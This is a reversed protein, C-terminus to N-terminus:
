WALINTVLLAVFGANFAAFGWVAAPLWRCRGAGLAVQRALLLWAPVLLLLVLYPLLGAVAAWLPLLISGVALGAVVARTATLPLVVALTRRGVAADATADNANESLLVLMFYCGLLASELLATAVQTGQLLLYPWLLTAVTSYWLLAEAGGPRFSLRLGWSYQPSLAAAALFLAVASLPWAGAVLFAGIGACLGVAQAIAIFVIVQRETVAGDLLPKRRAGRENGNAGYSRIDGGNRFGVLDDLATTAAVVAVVSILCCAFVGLTRAQTAVSWPLLTWALALGFYHQFVTLKAVKFLARVVASRDRAGVRTGGDVQEDLRGNIVTL